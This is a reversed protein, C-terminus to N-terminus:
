LIGCCSTVGPPVPSSSALPSDLNGRKWLFAASCLSHCHLMGPLSASPLLGLLLASCPTGPASGEQMKPCQQGDLLLPQLRQPQAPPPVLCRKCLYGKSLFRWTSGRNFLTLLLGPAFLRFCGRPLCSPKSWCGGDADVEATGVSFLGLGAAWHHGEAASHLEHCNPVPFIKFYIYYISKNNM